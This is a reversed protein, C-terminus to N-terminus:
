TIASEHVGFLTAMRRAGARRPLEDSFAQQYRSLRSPEHRASLLLLRTANPEGPLCGRTPARHRKRVTHAHNQLQYLGFRVYLFWRQTKRNLGHVATRM